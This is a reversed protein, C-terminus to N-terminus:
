AALEEILDAVIKTITTKKKKALKILKAKHSDSLRLDLRAPKDKTLKPM